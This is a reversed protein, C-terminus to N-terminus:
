DEDTQIDNAIAQRLNVDGAGGAELFDHLLGATIDARQEYVVKRQDNMVDDYQLLQKRIDYNRAEVKKQATEIAKSIRTRLVEFLRPVVVMVTPRVEEINAALKEVSEAFYIEGGLAIPFYLGATHEYSHSLPLFSLFVDPIPAFDERLIASAGDVNHLIMGHHFRVGRPAGGTGSTYILCATDGREIRARSMRQLLAQADEDTLAAFLPAQRVVEIDM